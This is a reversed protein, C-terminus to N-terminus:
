DGIFDKKKEYEIQKRLSSIHREVFQKHHLLNATQMIPLLSEWYKIRKQLLPVQSGSWTWSRPELPLMEFNKFDNNRQVFHKVFRRRRDLEFQSIVGFLHRMLKSDNFKKDILNFIYNDQKKQINQTTGATEERIRFFIELYSGPIMFDHEHSLITNIIKNMIKRYDSRLWLFSYNRHEDHGSLWGNEANSYKWSIYEIIFNPDLDLILSFVKGDYDINNLANEVHLYAQKLLDIKEAFLEPLQKTIETNSIFLTALIYAANQGHKAKQLIISTVKAVIQSDLPLYKLLFDMHTPIYDLEAERYLDYLHNLQKKTVVDKPLVEHLHFLWRQKTKFKIDTLFQLAENFAFHEILKQVLENGPIQLPDGLNLYYELVKAYLTPARKALALLANTVSQQLQYENHQSDLANKIKLCHKFFYIYEDFTYNQTYKALREQKYREYENYSLEMKQRESWEPLLIKSLRYTENNYKEMLNKPFEINHKKLLNLYNHMLLCHRYDNPNLITQLFPLVHKADAKVINGNTVKLPSTAYNHIVNLVDKKLHPRGFLNILGKWIFTRLDTLEPTIPIDFRIIQTTHADKSEINEFHTSLYNNAVSLFVRSFLPNGDNARSWLLDVVTHQIKFQRLYSDPRFGYDDTLVQLILPIQLPRKAMYDLLLEIAIRAEDETVFAFLRLISLISPSPITGSVKEFSIQTIEIPEPELEDILKRVWLLTDTRKTFGFVDLLHLLGEENGAEKLEVWLQEVHFRIVNIIRESDFTNFVPNVSDVIRHRLKPFFHRLLVGFDLVKEKFVALYFLYTGLVQDSLKVVENEYIDVIELDHLRNAVDWFAEPSFKFADEIARMMEVNTRDVTKFFSIISAVKLLETSKLDTGAKKIDEHISSFYIDYLSSADSISGLSGQKKVVTAAMVALRPNGGAIDVIRDLYFFNRINFEKIILEKLQKAHFPTLRKEFGELPQAEERIKSLAYDRVTAIVKIQQDERQHVLLDVIYEFRSVRNADDVLILFNGPKSFYVQLDEWLDRNRGFTCLVKYESHTENFRQCVELALRTKGVGAHGTLIVLKEKELAELLSKLEKERFHFNIDLPTTLKNNQYLSIFKEPPVIQGTDIEIGLFERALGPYKLYLDFAIADIGFLELNIGKKHCIEALEKEEGANLNKTFCFVVGEIKDIPIGTKDIDLCKNLDGKLKKLLETSQTTYEALIYKGNSTKFLTDPTGPRSKNAAIVSGSSSFLKYGKSVLYADALKQFDGAGMELIARQIQNIKSM